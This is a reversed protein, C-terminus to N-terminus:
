RRRWKRGRAEKRGEEEEDEGEGVEEWEEVTTAIVGEGIGREGRSVEGWEEKGERRQRKVM